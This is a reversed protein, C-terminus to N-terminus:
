RPEPWRELLVDRSFTVAAVLFVIFVLGIFAGLCTALWQGDRIRPLAFLLYITAFAALFVWPVAIAAAKRGASTKL